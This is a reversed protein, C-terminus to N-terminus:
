FDLQLSPATEKKQTPDPNSVAPQTSGQLRPKTVSGFLSPYAYPFLPSPYVSPTGKQHSLDSVRQKLNEVTKEQEQIKTLHLQVTSEGEKLKSASLIVGQQAKETAQALLKNEKVVEPVLM